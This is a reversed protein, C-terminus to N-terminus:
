GGKKIIVRSCNWFGSWKLNFFEFSVLHLRNDVNIELLSRRDDTSRCGRSRSM